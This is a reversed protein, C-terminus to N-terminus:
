HSHGNGNSGDYGNVRYDRLYREVDDRAGGIVEVNFYAVFGRNQVKVRLTGGSINHPNYYQVHTEFDRARGRHVFRGGKVASIDSRAELDGFFGVLGRPIRHKRGDLRVTPPM